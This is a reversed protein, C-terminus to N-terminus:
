ALSLTLVLLDVKCTGHRSARELVLKRSKEFNDKLFQNFVEM